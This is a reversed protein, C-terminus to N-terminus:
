QRVTVIKAMPGGIEIKCAPARKADSSNKENPDGENGMARISRRCLPMLLNLSSFSAELPACFPMRM